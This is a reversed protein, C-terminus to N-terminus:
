DTYNVRPSLGCLETYNIPDKKQVSNVITPVTHVSINSYNMDRLHIRLRVDTVLLIPVGRGFQYKLIEFDWLSVKTSRQTTITPDTKQDGREGSMVGSSKKMQSHM